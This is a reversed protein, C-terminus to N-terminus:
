TSQVYWNKEGLGNREPRSTLKEECRLQRSNVGRLDVRDASCLGLRKLVSDLQVHSSRRRHPRLASGIGVHLPRAPLHTPTPSSKGVSNAGVGTDVGVRVPLPHPRSAAALAANRLRSGHTEPM